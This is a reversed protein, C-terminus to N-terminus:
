ADGRLARVAAAIAGEGKTWVRVLDTKNSIFGLEILFAPVKTDRLIPLGTTGAKPAAMTDIKAGRNKLGIHEAIVQSITAAQAFRAKSSLHSVLVETGTAAPNESSNMHLSFLVDGPQATENVWEVVDPISLEPVLVVPFPSLLSRSHEAVRTVVESETTGFATAGPDLAQAKSNNLGHGRDILLRSFRM